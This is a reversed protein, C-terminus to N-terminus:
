VLAKLLAQLKLQIEALEKDPNSGAVIGAGAFLRAHNEKSSADILASRIGVIFESNGRYDVWGLPAAYLSRDFTEYRRIQECAIDRPTGAVAPTPHLQTLIELPHIGAPIKARIPTWLHQINSLQLLGPIPLKQPTMGLCSLRQVIFDSVIQHEFREKESKLLGNAFYADEAASKGRPASGALADTELEQNQIHILREPSAGIFSQGKGNSTSFVYCDPYNLRLNDLSNVLNLPQNSIIDVAQALVIKDLHNSKVLELIALVSKKFRDKDIFIEKKTQYINSATLQNKVSIIIQFKHWLSDTLIKVNDKPSIAFNTVIVSYDKTRAVQWRPLFVTAAPFTYNPKIEDFFTFSCFFHPGSFPLKLDGITTTKALCSDIFHKVESFRHLGEATFKVVSDVATIANGKGRKESYFHLQSPQNISQLVVLPDVPPIKLSISFIQTSNKAVSIEQCNVLFQYLEKYDGLLNAQSPLVPM